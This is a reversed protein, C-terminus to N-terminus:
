AMVEKKRFISNFHYLAFLSSSLRKQIIFILVREYINKPKMIKAQEITKSDELMIKINDHKEKLSLGNDYYFMNSCCYQIGDLHSRAMLNDLEQNRDFLIAMVNYRSSAGRKYLEYSDKHFKKVLTMRKRSIYHYFPINLYGVKNTTSFIKENFVIDEVLVLGKEFQLNNKKLLDTAYLKNWAFGVVSIVSNPNEPEIDVVTKNIIEGNEDHEENFLGYILVDVGLTIIEHLTREIMNLEIYDDSDVFCIYDGTSVDLGVNRADSLGGNDKHIVKIRSDLQGYSDIIDPSKDPSGDDVLIIELNTYTQDIISEICKGVYEEVNYIPVVISVLPEM